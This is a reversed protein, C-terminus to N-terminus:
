KPAKVRRKTPKIIPAPEGQSIERTVPRRRERETKLWAELNQRSVRVVRGIPQAGAKDIVVYATRLSVGLERSVDAASLYRDSV